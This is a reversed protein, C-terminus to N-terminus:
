NNFFFFVFKKRMVYNIEKLASFFLVFSIKKILNIAFYYMELEIFVMFYKEKGNEEVNPM